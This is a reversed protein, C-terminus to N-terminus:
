LCEYTQQIKGNKWVFFIIQTKQFTFGSTDHLINETAGLKRWELM